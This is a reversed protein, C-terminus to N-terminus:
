ERKLDSGLSLFSEMVSRKCPYTYKINTAQAYVTKCVSAEYICGTLTMSTSDSLPLMSRLLHTLSAFPKEFTTKCAKGM